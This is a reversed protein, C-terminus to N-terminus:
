TVNSSRSIAILFLFNGRLYARSNMRRVLLCRNEFDNPQFCNKDNISCFSGVMRRAYVEKHKLLDPVSCFLSINADSFFAPSGAFSSLATAIIRNRFASVSSDIEYPCKRFKISKSGESRSCSSGRYSSNVM